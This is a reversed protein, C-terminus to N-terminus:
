RYQSLFAPSLRTTPIETGNTRLFAYTPKGGPSVVAKVQAVQDPGPPNAAGTGQSPVFVASVYLFTLSGPGRSLGSVSATATSSGLTGTLIGPTSTGTGGGFIVNIQTGPPINSAQVVINIPDSLQNPLVLDATDKRYGAYTPVSFGGVSVITLTPTASAFLVPNISSIVASPNASGTFSLADLPAELRIMGGQAATDGTANIQGAVSM